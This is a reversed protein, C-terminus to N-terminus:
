CILLWHRRTSDQDCVTGNPEEASSAKIVWENASTGPRSMMNTKEQVAAAGWDAPACVIIHVLGTELHYLVEEELQKNSQMAVGKM